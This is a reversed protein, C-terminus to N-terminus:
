PCQYVACGVQIGSGAAILLVKDGSALKNNEMLHGLGMPISANFLDGSPNCLNLCKEKDLQMGKATKDIIQGSIQPPIIWDFDSIHYKHNYLFSTLTQIISTLYIKELHPSNNFALGLQNDQFYLYSEKAESYETFEQFHFSHFGSEQDPSPELLMASGIEAINPDAEQRNVVDGSVVLGANYDRTNVLAGVTQIGNLFGLAGNLVDFSFTTKAQNPEVVPNLGLQNQIFSAYAPEGIHDYHYTSTNVLVGIDERSYASTSLCKEAAGQILELTNHENPRSSSYLGISHIKALM